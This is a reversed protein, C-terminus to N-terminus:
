LLYDLVHDLEYTLLYEMAMSVLPQFPHYARSVFPLLERRLPQPLQRICQCLEGM